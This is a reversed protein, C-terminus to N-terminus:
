FPKRSVRFLRTEVANPNQSPHFRVFWRGSTLLNADVVLRIFHETGASQLPLHSFEWVVNTGNLLDAHWDEQRTDSGRLEIELDVRATNQPIALEAAEAPGRPVIASLFLVTDPEQKLQAVSPPAPQPKLQADVRRSSHSQYMMMALLAMMAALGPAVPFLVWRWRLERWRRPKAQRSIAAILTRFSQVEEQLSPSRMCQARFSAEEEGSLRGEAFEEVLCEREFQLALSLDQDEFLREDLEVAQDEPLRGLLYDRIAQQDFRMPDIHRFDIRWEM